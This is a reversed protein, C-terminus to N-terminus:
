KYVQKITRKEKDINCAKNIQQKDREREKSKM